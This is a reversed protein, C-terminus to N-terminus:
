LPTEHAAHHSIFDQYFISSQTIQFFRQQTHEQLFYVDSSVCSYQAQLVTIAYIIKRIAETIDNNGVKIGPVTRVGNFPDTDAM